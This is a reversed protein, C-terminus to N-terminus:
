SALVEGLAKLLIGTTYPKALFHSVQPAATRATAGHTSIGSTAIIKVRPNMKSIERIAAPGDRGPMMMDTLVVAIAAGHKAYILCAEEGDAAVMVRYGFAELIQRAVGRIPEEDDVVLITEGNGRPLPPTAAVVAQATKGATAPFYLTFIAGGAPSNEAMMFGGHSKVISLSTPLGLGTGKGPEKTTFFPDFIREMVDPSIGGGEDEVGIRVHPGPRADLIGAAVAPDFEVTSAKIFIRGGEPMADRANVCLNVLVQHLRTPDGSFMCAPSDAVHEIRVNKPFTESVFQVVDTILANAEVELRPGEEGRAFSLVQNVMEAGRAASGAVTRLLAEARPDRMNMQLLEVGMMIPTFVNNLDHAIGGALTGISELRQARLFQREFDKHRTIDTQIALVRSPQSNEDRVLTWRADIVIHKGDRTVVEQEGAWEGSERLEACAGEFAAADQSILEQVPRGLAEEANWGFLREASKNWYTVRHDLDRVVIADRAKDLLSAQERFRTELRAREECERRLAALAQEAKRRADLAEDRLLLAAKESEELERTRHGVVAELNGVRVKSEQLLSWKETLAHAMQLVEIGDFPKKLILMRDRADLRDRMDHWSCDSYATCLVIQIDPCIKWIHEVTEIGDWGPPMRVDVFAISYPRGEEMARAVKELGERGQCASDIDFWTRADKGFFLAETSEMEMEADGPRGLIKRFDQHIATNDDIVLIRRESPLPLDGSM